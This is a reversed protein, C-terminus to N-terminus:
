NAYNAPSRVGALESIEWNRPGRRADDGFFRRARRTKTNFGARWDEQRGNGHVETDNRPGLHGGSGEGDTNKRGVEGSIADFVRWQPTIQIVIM